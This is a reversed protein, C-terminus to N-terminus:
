ALEQERAIPHAARVELLNEGPQRLYILCFTSHCGLAMNEALKQLGQDLSEARAVAENAELLLQRHREVQQIYRVDKFYGVSGARQGDANYLWTASMRVPIELGAKSKLKARHDVVRADRS